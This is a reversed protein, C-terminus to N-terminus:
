ILIVILNWYKCEIAEKDLISEIREVDPMEYFESISEVAHGDTFVFDLDNKLVRAVSSVCYVIKEPKIAFVNNFGNQIVYLMPMRVGFYFPTYDGLRRGNPIVMDSRKSILSGDGIPVYEKNADPSNVHTIGYQLIHPINDIHTLRYINRTKQEPV